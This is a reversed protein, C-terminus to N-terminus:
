TTAPRGTGQSTLWEKELVQSNEGYKGYEFVVQSVINTALNTRIKLYKEENTSSRSFCEHFTVHKRQELDCQYYEPM